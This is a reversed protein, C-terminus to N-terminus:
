SYIAFFFMSIIRVIGDLEENPSILLSKKGNNLDVLWIGYYADSVILNNGLSDFAM